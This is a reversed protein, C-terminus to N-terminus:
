SFKAMSTRDIKYMMMEPLFLKYDSILLKKYHNLDEYDLGDAFSNKKSNIKLLKTLKKDELFSRYKIEM